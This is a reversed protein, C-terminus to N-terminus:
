LLKELVKGFGDAMCRFGLDNPHAGDVTCDRGYAGFFDYGEVWYVNTDGAALAREYTERVVQRREVDEARRDPWIAHTPRTAILIPIEPHAQRIIEFFNWHTQRLHEVNPANYDYDMVFASMDLSALYRAMSEEGKANGSFGFNRYDFDLRRSLIAQYSNGPRSACGGQTISSGYFVVPTEIRYPRPANLVADQQLGLELGDVQDYLPFNITVERMQRDPFRIISEFGDERKAPPIFSGCYVEEGDLRLYCDFGTSGTLPMHSMLKTGPQQVRIAVYASDTAFRVRGGATYRSMTKVSASVTGAVDEPMRRFGGPAHPEYLGYIGAATERVDRFLVDPEKVTEEIHLNKDIKGIDM